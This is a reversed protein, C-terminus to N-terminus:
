TELSAAAQPKGVRQGKGEQGPGLGKGKGEPGPTRSECWLTRHPGEGWRDLRGLASPRLSRGKASVAWKEERGGGPVLLRILFGASRASRFISM